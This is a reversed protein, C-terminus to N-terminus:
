SSLRCQIYGIWITVCVIFIIQGKWKLISNEYSDYHIRTLMPIYNRAIEFDKGNKIINIIYLTEFWVNPDNIECKVEKNSWKGWVKLKCFHKKHNFMKGSRRKWEFSSSWSQVGEAHYAHLLTGIVVLISMETWVFFLNNITNM